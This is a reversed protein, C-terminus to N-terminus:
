SIDKLNPLQPNLNFIPPLMPLHASEEDETEDEDLHAPEEVDEDEAEGGGEGVGGGVEVESPANRFGTAAAACGLAADLVKVEGLDRRGTPHEVVLLQLPHAVGEDGERSEEEAVGADLTQHNCQDAPAPFPFKM